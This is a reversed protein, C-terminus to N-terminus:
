FYRALAFNFRLRSTKYYELSADTLAYSAQLEPSFGM